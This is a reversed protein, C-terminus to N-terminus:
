LAIKYVSGDSLKIIYVNGSSLTFAEEDCMQNRQDILIGSINFIWCSLGSANVITLTNGDIRYGTEDAKVTEVEAYGGTESTFSLTKGYITEGTETVVFARINYDGEPLQGPNFTHQMTEDTQVRVTNGAALARIGSKNTWYEYGQSVVADSGAVFYGCMVLANNARDTRYLTYVSAPYYVFELETRFNKWGGVYDKEGYRVVARYQYDTDPKLLGNNLGLTLSNDDENHIGKTFIPDSSWGSMEQWQFGFLADSYHDCLAEGNFKASRNSINTADGTSVTISLTNLNKASSYQLGGEKTEVYARWSYTGEPILNTAHTEGDITTLTVDTWNGNNYRQQVGSRVYQADGVQYACRVKVATQFAETCYVNTYVPKTTFVFKTETGYKYIWIFDKGNVSGHFCIEYKTDPKLGTFRVTEGCDHKTGYRGISYQFNDVKTNKKTEDDFAVRMTAKTQTIDSFAVDFKIPLTKFGFDESSINNFTLTQGGIKVYPHYSYWCEPQLGTISVTVIGNDVVGKIMQRNEDGDYFLLGAEEIVANDDNEELWYKVIASTQTATIEPHTTSIYHKTWFDLTQSYIVDCGAPQVYTRALYRQGLDLGTKALVFTDGEGGDEVEEWKSASYKKFQMGRQYINADGCIVKGELEASHQTVTKVTPQLAQVSLTKFEGPASFVTDCDEAQIYARYNYATNPKLRTIQQSHQKATVEKSFNTWRAGTKDKYQIGTAIITADGGDVTGSLLASAQTITAPQNINAALPLTTFEVDSIELDQWTGISLDEPMANLVYPQISYKTNPKLGTILATIDETASLEESKYLVKDLVKDLGPINLLRVGVYGSATWRLTHKGPALTYTVNRFMDASPNKDGSISSANQTGDVFFRATSSSFWVNIWYFSITTAKSLVFSVQFDDGYLYPKGDSTTRYYTGTNNSKITLQTGYTTESLLSRYWSENEKYYEKDLIKYGMKVEADGLTSKIQMRAKTQTINDMTVDNVSIDLTRFQTMPGYEAKEGNVACARVLFANAPYLHELSGDTSDIWRGATTNTICLNRLMGIDLGVNTSSKKTYTWKLTHEGESLEFSVATFPVEGSIKAKVTGDVTFSLIGFNEESDVSWEFSVSGTDNIIVTTSIESSQGAKLNGASEIWHKVDRVKWPASASTSLTIPDSNYTMAGKALVNSSPLLGPKYQYKIQASADTSTASLMAKTQTVGTVTPMTVEGSMALPLFAPLLAVIWKRYFHRM